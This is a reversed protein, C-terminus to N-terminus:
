KIQKKLQEVEAKLDKIAEILYGTINGYAVSKFESDNNVLEPAIKELEQAIVGSGKKDDKVFSVGRMDYVKSGDLTKVNTKLREDSYAVIDSSATVTGTISISNGFAVTGNANIVIDPYSSPNFDRSIAIPVSASNSGICAFSGNTGILTNGGQVRTSSYVNGNIELPYNASNVGIGVYGNGSSNISIAATSGSHKAITFNSGTGFVAKGLRWDTGSTSGIYMYSSTAGSATNVFRGIENAQNSGKGHIDIILRGENNDTRWLGAHQLDIAVIDSTPRNDTAGTGGGHSVLTPMYDTSTDVGIPEIRIVDVPERNNRKLRFIIEGNNWPGTANNSINNRYYWDVDQTQGGYGHTYGARFLSFVEATSMGATTHHNANNCRILYESYTSGTAHKGGTFIKVKFSSALGQASYSAPNKITYWQYFPTQTGGSSAHTKTVAQLSHTSYGETGQYVIGKLEGAKLTIHGHLGSNSDEGLVITANSNARALLLDEDYSFIQGSDVIVKRNFYFQSRDTQIHAYGSNMAGIQIYGSPTNAQWYNTTPTWSTSATIGTGKYNTANVVGYFTADKTDDIFLATDLSAANGASGTGSAVKFYLQGNYNGGDAGQIQAMDWQTSNNPHDTKFFITPKATSYRGFLDLRGNNSTGGAEGVQLRNKIKAFGGSTINLVEAMNSNSGNNALNLSFNGFGHASSGGTTSAGPTILNMQIYNKGLGGYDNVTRTSHMSILNYTSNSVINKASRIIGRTSNDGYFEAGGSGVVLQHGSANNGGRIYVNGGSGGSLFTHTGDTLVSYESNTMNDTGLMGYTAGAQWSRLVLGGDPGETKVSGTFNASKDHALTLVTSLTTDCTKFELRSHRDSVDTWKSLIQSGYVSTTGTYYGGMNIMGHTDEDAPSTTFHLLDIQAGGAGTNTSEVRIADGSGNIHLMTTPDVGIGVAGSFVADQNSKLELADNAGNTQFILHGGSAAARVTGNGSTFQLRRNSGTILLDTSGVVSLDGGINVRESGSGYFIHKKNSPMYYVLDDNNDKQIYAKQEGDVSFQIKQRGGTSAGDLVLASYHTPLSVALSTDIVLSGPVVAMNNIVPTLSKLRFDKLYLFQGNGTVNGGSSTSSAMWIEITEGAVVDKIDVEYNRYAHVSHSQGSALGGQYGSGANTGDNGNAHSSGFTVSNSKHYASGGSKLIRWSWYYSGSQIYASFCVRVKGSRTATTEVMKHYGSTGDQAANENRNQAFTVDGLQYSLAAKDDEIRDGALRLSDSNTGTGIHLENSSTSHIKAYGSDWTLSGRGAGWQFIGSSTFRWMGSSGNNTDIYLHKSAGAVLRLLTAETQIYSHEADDKEFMIQKASATDDRSLSLYGPGLEAANVDGMSAGIGVSSTLNVTHAAAKNVGLSCIYNAELQDIIKKTGVYNSTPTFGSATSSVDSISMRRSVGAPIKVSGSPQTLTKATDTGYFLDVNGAVVARVLLRSDWVVNDGKIWINRDDDVYVCIEIPSAAHSELHNVNITTNNWTSVSFRGHASRPYNVDSQAYYEIMLVGSNTSLRAIKHYYYQTNPSATADYIYTPTIQRWSLENQYGTTITQDIIAGKGQVRMMVNGNGNYFRVDRSVSNTKIDLDGSRTNITNTILGDTLDTVLGGNGDGSFFNINGGAAKITWSRTGSQDFGLRQGNPIGLGTDQTNNLNTSTFFNTSQVSGEFTASQDKNLTLATTLSGSTNRTQFELEGPYSGSGWSGNARGRILSGYNFTGDTPDDGAFGIYGLANTGSITTDDRRLNLGAGGSAHAIIDGGTTLTGAFEGNGASSINGEDLSITFRDTGAGVFVIDNPTGSWQVGWADSSTPSSPYYRESIGWIDHRGSTDSNDNRAIFGNPLVPKTTAASPFIVQGTFTGGALPMKTSDNTSTSVSGDAMLYETSAGGTKIFSTATMTGTVSTNGSNGAITLRAIENTGLVLDRLSSNHYIHMADDDLAIAGKYGSGFVRLQGASSASMSINTGDGLDVNGAFTTKDDKDITLQATGGKQVIFNNEGSGAFTRNLIFSHASNSDSDNDATLTTNLDDQYIQLREQNNRGINFEASGTGTYIDVNGTFESKGAATIKLKESTANLGQGGLEFSIAGDRDMIISSKHYNTNQTNRTQFAIGAGTQSNNTGSIVLLGGEKHYADNAVFAGGIYAAVNNTLNAGAVQLSIAPDVGIGLKNKVKLDGSTQFQLADNVSASGIHGNNNVKISPFLSFGSSVIEVENNTGVNIKGGFKAGASSMTTYNNRDTNVFALESDGTSLTPKTTTASALIASSTSVPVNATVTTTGTGSSMGLLKIWVEQTAASPNISLVSVLKSVNYRSGPLRFIHSQMNYGSQSIYYTDLTNTNDGSSTINLRIRKPGGANTIIKFYQDSSSTRDFSVYYKPASYKAEHHQAVSNVNLNGALSVNGAFIANGSNNIELASTNAGAGIFVSGATYTGAANSRLHVDNSNDIFYMGRAYNSTNAEYDTRWVEVYSADDNTNAMVRLVAPSGANIPKLHAYDADQQTKGLTFGKNGGQIQLRTKTTNGTKEIHLIEDPSQTGVGLNGSQTLRMAESNSANFKIGDASSGYIKANSNGFNIGKNDNFLAVNAFYANQSNNLSFALTPNGNHPKTLFRMTTAAADGMNSVFDSYRMYPSGSVAYYHNLILGTGDSTSYTRVGASVGETDAIRLRNGSNNSDFVIDVNGLFTTLGTGRDIALRTTDVNSGVGIRFENASGDYRISAGNQINDTSGEHLLIKSTNGNLNSNMNLTPGANKSMIVDGAFTASSVGIRLKETGARKLLLDGGVVDLSDHGLLTYNSDNFYSQVGNLFKRAM